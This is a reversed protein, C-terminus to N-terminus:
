NQEHGEREWHNDTHIPLVVDATSSEPWAEFYAPDREVPAATVGRWITWLVAKIAVFKRQLYSDRWCMKVCVDSVAESNGFVNSSCLILILVSAAIWQIWIGSFGLLTAM